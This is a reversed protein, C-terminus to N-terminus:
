SVFWICTLVLSRFGTFLVTKKFKVWFPCMDGLGLTRDRKVVSEPIQQYVIDCNGKFKERARFMITIDCRDVSKNVTDLAKKLHNSAFRQSVALGQLRNSHDTDKLLLFFFFPFLPFLPSLQLQLSGLSHVNLSPTLYQVPVCQEQGVATIESVTFIYLSCSQWQGNNSQKRDVFSHTSSTGAPKRHTQSQHWFDCKKYPMWPEKLSNKLGLLWCICYMDGVTQWNYIAKYTCM